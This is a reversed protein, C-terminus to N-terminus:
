VEKNMSNLLDKLGAFRIDIDDRDCGCEGHNLNAGCQTCLGLCDSKCLIKMPMELFIQKLLQPTLDIEDGYFLNTEEYEDAEAIEPHNTYIEFVDVAFDYEFPELCRSCVLEVTGKVVGELELMNGSNVIEGEFSFPSVPKIEGYGYANTNINETIGINETALKINKLKGVNIKLDNVM